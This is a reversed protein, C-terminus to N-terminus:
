RDSAGREFGPAIAREVPDGEDVIWRCMRRLVEVGDQPVTQNDGNAAAGGLTVVRQVGALALRDRLRERLGAPYVGCTQATSSIRELVPTLDTVPVLNVYRAALSATYDVPRGDWSILVGGSRTGGGIVEPEDTLLAAEIEDRLAAPIRDAPSSYTEPLAQLADYVATAFGRVVSDPDTCESVDVYAVRSNVCGEQNMLGVDMALRRAAEAGLAPDTLVEPGLLSLSLKPDLAILEVGPGVFQAVHKIGAVGGWAVIKDINPSSFAVREVVEDGGRWHLASVHKTLPHDADLDVMTRLIAVATVPDNSPTKIIADSRTVANRVITQASVGPSNGAVVHTTRAGFARIRLDRGDVDREHVWGEVYEAGLRRVVSERIVAPRFFRALQEDYVARLVTESLNSASVTLAFAAQLHENRALRLRDGLAALFDIIEELTITHLDALGVRSRLPIEGLLRHPDPTRFVVDGSHHEVTLEDVVRGRIVFPVDVVRADVQTM